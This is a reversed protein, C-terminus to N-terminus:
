RLVLLLQCLLFYLKLSHTGRGRFPFFSCGVSLRALFYVVSQCRVSEVGEFRVVSERGRPCFPLFRYAFCLM